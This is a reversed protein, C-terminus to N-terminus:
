KNDIKTNNSTINEKNNESNQNEKALNIDIINNEVHSELKNDSNSNKLNEKDKSIEAIDKSSTDNLPQEEKVEVYWDEKIEEKKTEENNKNLPKKTEEKDQNKNNKKIVKVEAEVQEEPLEQYEKIMTDDTVIELKQTTGSIDIVATQFLDEENKNQRFLEFLSLICLILGIIPCVFIFKTTKFTTVSNINNKHYYITIKDDLEINDKYYFNYNYSTEDIDYSVTIDNKGTGNEDKKVDVVKAEVSILDREGNVIYICIVLSLLLLIGIVLFIVSKLNIEKETM